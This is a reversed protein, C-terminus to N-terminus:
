VSIPAGPEHAPVVGSVIAYWHLRHSERPAEHAAILPAILLVYRSARASTPAVSRRETVALLAAPEAVDDDVAVGTVAGDAIAGDLVDSGAILPVV